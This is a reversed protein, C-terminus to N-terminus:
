EAPHPASGTDSERQSHPRRSFRAFALGVAAVLLGGIAPASNRIIEDLPM